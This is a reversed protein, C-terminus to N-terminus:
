RNPHRVPIRGSVRKKDNSAIVMRTLPLFEKEIYLWGDQQSYTTAHFWEEGEWNIVKVKTTGIM